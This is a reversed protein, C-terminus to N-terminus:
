RATSATDNQEFAEWPVVAQQTSGQRTSPEAVVQIETARLIVNDQVPNMHELELSSNALHQRPRLAQLPGPPIAQLQSVASPNAYSRLINRPLQLMSHSKNARPMRSDISSGYQRRIDDARLMGSVMSGFFTVLYPSCATIVSLSQTVQM